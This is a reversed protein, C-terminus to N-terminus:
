SAYRLREKIDRAVEILDNNLQHDRDVLVRVTAHPIAHAYLEVHSVPVTDDATGHYLLVTSPVRTALDKRQRIEDSSWGGDGIFPAAILCLAGVAKRQEAMVDLLMAGGVSHGIVVAHEDLDHLERILAPKWTAYSPDDENPMRPYRVAVGLHRALSDVLKDDWEDHTGAGGGQIFLITM